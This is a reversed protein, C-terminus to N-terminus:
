DGVVVSALTCAENYILDRVAPHLEGRVYMAMFDYDQDVFDAFEQYEDAMRETLTFKRGFDNEVAEGALLQDRIEVWISAEEEARLDANLKQLETRSADNDLEAASNGDLMEM